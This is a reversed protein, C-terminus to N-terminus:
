IDKEPDFPRLNTATPSGVPLRERVTKLLKRAKDYGRYAAELQDSCAQQFGSEGGAATIHELYRIQRWNAIVCDALMKELRSGQNGCLTLKM